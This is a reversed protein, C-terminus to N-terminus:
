VGTNFLELSKLAESLDANPFIQKLLSIKMKDNTNQMKNSALNSISSNRMTRRAADNQLNDVDFQRQYNADESGLSARFRGINSRVEARAMDMSNEKNFKEGYLNAKLRLNNAKNANLIASTNSGTTREGVAKRFSRDASKVEGLQPTIDFRTPLMQEAALMDAMAPGAMKNRIRNVPDKQFSSMFQNAPGIYPLVDRENVSVKPMELGNSRKMNLPKAPEDELINIANNRQPFNNPVQGPIPDYIRNPDDAPPVSYQNKGVRDYEYFRFNSNDVPDSPSNIDQDQYTIIDEFPDFTGGGPYKVYGGKSFKNLKSYNRKQGQYEDLPKFYSDEYYNKFRDIEFQKDDETYMKNFEERSLPTKIRLQKGFTNKDGYKGKLSPSYEGEEKIKNIM